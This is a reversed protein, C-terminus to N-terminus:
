NNAEHRKPENTIKSNDVKKFYYSTVKESVTLEVAKVENEQPLDHWDKFKSKSKSIKFKSWSFLNSPM